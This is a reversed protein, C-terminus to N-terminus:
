KKKILEFQVVSTREVAFGAICYALYFRWKRIFFEDFGLNKIESIKNDFNKLWIKLTEVYDSAFDLDSKVVFNHQSALKHIASKSPLVGGPFIHKQIFDVRKKYGEFVKDDITIIQLVAIGNAKLCKNLIEFYNQWYEQGVAEFMEISVINDYIGQEQRYDQLKIVFKTAFKELRKEAFQKQKQSLTLATIKFDKKLAQEMFGGWGCGIELITQNALKDIINQYKKQQAEALNKSNNVHLASSYTMTQDLWLQYFENGLDYHFSINKKSGSLTNKKFFNKLFLWFMKFKKAHFFHELAKANITLFTLLSVLDESDWRKDIYAEGFFVDGGLILEDIIKEDYIKIMAKPGDQKSIFEKNLKSQILEIKISGFEINEIAQWLFNYKQM